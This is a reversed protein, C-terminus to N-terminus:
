FIFREIFYNPKDSEPIEKLAEQLGLRSIRDGMIGTQTVLVSQMGYRRAGRIDTEPTDGVMLVQAPDTISHQQFHHMAAAYARRDPKGIYFVDGGMEEYMRALSGQRVVARPPNGEHAFQDPNPCVMPLNTSKIDKLGKQFIDPNTQDEGDVHPISIYIFDAENIDPTEEYVTDQLIAQHSTYKPHAEGLLFFKNKSTEFPLDNKFFDHKAIEGSTVFFHFHEGQLLGYSELKSIEKSSPQTSNSLVGVIKGQSILNKMTVASGSLPGASNGGWFVGYADLLIGSFSGIIESMGPFIKVHSSM